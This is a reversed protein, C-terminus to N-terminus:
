VVDRVDGRIIYERMPPMFQNAEDRELWTYAFFKRDRNANAMHYDDCSFRSDEKSLICVVDALHIPKDSFALPSTINSVKHLFLPRAGGLIRPSFDKKRNNQDSLDMPLLGVQPVGHDGMVIIEASNYINLQRMKEFKRNLLKLAGRAHRIYSERTNPMKEYELNENIFSPAHLGYYHYLKFEGKYPSDVKIKKEFEKLFLLDEGNMGIPLKKDETLHSLFWRSDDYIYPKIKTPLARFLGNDIILFRQKNIGKYNTFYNIPMCTQSRIGSFLNPDISVLSVGYGKESFYDPLNGKAYASKLWDRFPVENKYFSGSVILPLSAKTTSFGGVTNPYFIFGKLFNVEEPWRQAIEVLADSQFTDLVIIIKNNKNHFNFVAEEAHPIFNKSQYNAKFYTVTLSLVGLLLVGQALALLLKDKKFAIFISANIILFWVLLEGYAYSEWISWNIEQGDLVGFNWVLLQSQIWSSLAIGVIIGTLAKYLYSWKSFLWMIGLLVSSIILSIFLLLPTINQLGITFENHNGLYSTLPGIIFIIFPLSISFIISHKLDM